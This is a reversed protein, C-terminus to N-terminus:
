VKISSIIVHPFPTRSAFSHVLTLSFKRLVRRDERWLYKRAVLDLDSLQLLHDMMLTTPHMDVVNSSDCIAGECTAVSCADAATNAPADEEVPKDTAVDDCTAAAADECADIHSDFEVLAPESTPM